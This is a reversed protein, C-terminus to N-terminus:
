PRGIVEYVGTDDTLWDGIQLKMPLVRLVPPKSPDTQERATEGTQECLPNEANQTTRQSAHCEPIPQL